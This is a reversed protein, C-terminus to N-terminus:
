FNIDEITYKKGIGKAIYDYKRDNVPNGLADYFQVTFGENSVSTFVYSDGIQTNEISTIEIAPREVFAGDFIVADGSIVDKENIIRENWHADINASYVIPSITVDESELRIKLQFIRGTFDGAKFKVWPTATLESGFSLYDVSALPTWSVMTDPQNRTRIYAAADFDDDNFTGAIPNIEALTTWNKMLGTRSFGSASVDAIFRATFIDGLDFVEQFFFDGIEDVFTNYDDISKLTLAEGLLDTNEFVGNWNPASVNSIFEIKSIEPVSTVVRSAEPSKNGAYDIARILYTGTRLPVTVSSQTPGASTIPTSQEWSATQTNNSFRIAYKDVDLDDVFSWDLEITDTLVNANFNEVNAPATTDDVPTVFISTSETLTAKEGLANVGVVTFKHEVDLFNPNFEYNFFASDTFGVLSSQEDVKLYIEYTKIQGKLPPNWTLDVNYKYRKEGQNVDIKYVSSLDQVPTPVFSKGIPNDSLVIEYDPITGSDADFIAENYEILDIEAKLDDSYRIEKVLYPKVVQDEIGYVCLDDVKINLVNDLEIVYDSVFSVINYNTVTNNIRNRVTLIQTGGQDVAIEDITVQNGNIAKIRAPLGGEKLVDHSFYVLDGRNCALAEFDVNITINDKRLNQQALLYRGLRWAQELSTVGFAEVDEFLSSNSSNKGDDYAIVTNEQWNSLPDIYKVRIGDPTKVYSRSVNMSNINRQNFMQTPTDKLEDIVVGYKGNVINLTARGTSCVQELLQKVTISYDLVFNCEFGTENGQYTIKNTECYNAWKVISVTDILDLSIRRQNSENTLISVFVWAPNNSIKTKWVKNVNDYWPLYSDVEASITEIQGSIEDSAKAKVELFNHEIDVKVPDVKEYSRIQDWRFNKVYNVRTGAYNEVDIASYNVRVDWQTPEENTNITIEKRFGNRTRQSVRIVPNSNVFNVKYAFLGNVLRIGNNQISYFSSSESISTTVNYAINLIAKKFRKGDIIKDESSPAIRQVIHPIARTYTIRGFTIERSIFIKDGPLLYRSTYGDAISTLDGQEIPKHYFGTTNTTNTYVTNIYQLSTSSYNKKKTTSDPLHLVQVSTQNSSIGSDLDLQYQNINKWATTGTKRIEIILDQFVKRSRQKRGVYAILGAPWTFGLVIQQTNESTTRIANDGIDEFDVNVITSNVKNSYFQFETKNTINYQVDKFSTIPTNGITITGTNIRQKGTGFSYLAVIYQDKGLYYTFPQAAVRPFIRNTGYNRIVVENPAYINSQGTVSSLNNRSQDPLGPVSPPFMSNALQAGVLTFAGAVLSKAFLASFKTGAIFQGAVAGGLAISGLIIATRFIDNADGGAPILAISVNTNKNPRAYSWYKSNVKQGNVRIELHNYVSEPFQLHDLIQKFTLDDELHYDIYPAFIQKKSLVKM